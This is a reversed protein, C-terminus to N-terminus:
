RRDYYVIDDIRKSLNKEGSRFQLKQFDKVLRKGINEDRKKKKPPDIHFAVKQHVTVVFPQGRQAAQKVQTLHQRLERMGIIKPRM